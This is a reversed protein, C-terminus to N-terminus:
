PGDTTVTCSAVGFEQAHRDGAVFWCHKYSTLLGFTPLRSSDVMLQVATVGGPLGSALLSDCSITENIEGLRAVVKLNSDDECTIRLYDELNEPDVCGACFFHSFRFAISFSVVAIALMLVLVRGQAM